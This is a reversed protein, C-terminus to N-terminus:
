WKHTGQLLVKLKRRSSEKANVTHSIQQLLGLKQGIGAKLRGEKSRLFM